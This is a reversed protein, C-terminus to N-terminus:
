ANIHGVFTPLCQELHICQISRVMNAQFGIRSADSKPFNHEACFFWVGLKNTCIIMFTQWLLLNAQKCWEAAFIRVVWVKKEFSRLLVRTYLTKAALTPPVEVFVFCKKGCFCIRTQQIQFLPWLGRCYCRFLGLQWSSKDILFWLTVNHLGMDGAAVALASM